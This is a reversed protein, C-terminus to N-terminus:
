AGPSPRDDEQRRASSFRLSPSQSEVCPRSMLSNKHPSTNSSLPPVNPVMYSDKNSKLIGLFFRAVTSSPPFRSLSIFHNLFAWKQGKDERAGSGAVDDV